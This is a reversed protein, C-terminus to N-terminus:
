QDVDDFISRSGDANCLMRYGDAQVAYYQGNPLPEEGHVEEAQAIARLWRECHEKFMVRNDASCLADGSFVSADLADIESEFFRSM